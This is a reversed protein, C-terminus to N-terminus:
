TFLPFPCPTSLRTTQFYDCDDRKRGEEQCCFNTTLKGIRVGHPIPEVIRTRQGHFSKNCNLDRMHRWPEAAFTISFLDIVVTFGAFFFQSVRLALIAPFLSPLLTPRPFPSQSPFMWEESAEREGEQDGCCLWDLCAYLVRGNPM